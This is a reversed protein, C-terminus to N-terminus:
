RTSMCPKLTSVSRNYDYWPEKYAQMTQIRQYLYLAYLLGSTIMGTDQLGHNRTLNCHKSERASISAYLLVSTIMGTDKLGNNRTLNCHKSERTSICPMCCVMTGQISANNPNEPLSVPCVASSINDYWYGETWPDCLVLLWRSKDIWWVYIIDTTLIRCDMTGQLTVINPSEPLSVPCVASRINDYWYGETWPEDAIDDAIKPEAANGHHVEDVRKGAFLTMQYSLDQGVTYSNPFADKM